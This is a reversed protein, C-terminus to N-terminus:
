QDLVLQHRVDRAAQHWKIRPGMGMSTMCCREGHVARELNFAFVSHSLVVCTQTLVQSVLASGEPSGSSSSPFSDAHCSAPQQSLQQLLGLALSSKQNYGAQQQQQQRMFATNHRQHPEQM